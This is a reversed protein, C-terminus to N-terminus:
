DAVRGSTAGADAKGVARRAVLKEKVVILQQMTPSSVVALLPLYTIGIFLVTLAIRGWEGEGFGLATSLAIGAVAGVGSAVTPGALVRPLELSTGGSSRVAIYYFAWGVMAAHAAVAVAAGTAGAAGAGIAVALLFTVANVASMVFIVRFRGQATLLHYNADSVSRIVAAVSLIQLLPGADEWRDQFVADVLDSGLVLGVMGIPVGVAALVRVARVFAAHQRPSCSPLRALTPFLVRGVNGTFIVVGQISLRFAFYYFGVDAATAFLGLVFYDGQAVVAGLLGSFGLLLTDRTLSPWESRDRPLTVELSHHRGYLVLEIASSFVEALAFSYAGLGFAALVVTFASRLVLQTGNIRAITGFRLDCQLRARPAVSAGQLPITLALIWTLNRVEPEDVLTAIGPAAVVLMAAAITSMGMSLWFSSRALTATDPSREVLVQALGYRFLTGGAAAVAVSIAILGFDEPTLLYALLLQSVIGSSKVAVAQLGFSLAGKIAVGALDEDTM